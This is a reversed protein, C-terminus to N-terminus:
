NITPLELRLELLISISPLRSCKPREAYSQTNPLSFTFGSANNNLNTNAKNDSNTRLKGRVITENERYFDTWEDIM